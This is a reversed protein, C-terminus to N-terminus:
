RYCGTYGYSEFTVGARTSSDTTALQAIRIITAADAPLVFQAAGASWSQLQEQLRLSQENGASANMVEVDDTQVQM